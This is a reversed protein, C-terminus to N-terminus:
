GSSTEPDGTSFWDRSLDFFNPNNERILNKKWSRHWRKLQKEREIALYVDGIEEYYLLRKCSYKNSFGKFINNKHEYMRREINNTVGVYFM